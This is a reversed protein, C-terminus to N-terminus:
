CFCRKSSDGIILIKFSYDSAAGEGVSIDNEDLYPGVDLSRSV